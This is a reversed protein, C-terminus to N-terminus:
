HQNAATVPRDFVPRSWCQIQRELEPDDLAEKMANLEREVKKKREARAERKAARADSFIDIVVFIIWLWFPVIVVFFSRM